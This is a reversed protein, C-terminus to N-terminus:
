FLPLTGFIHVDNCDCPKEGHEDFVTCHDLTGKGYFVLPGFTLREEAYGWKSKLLTSNESIKLPQIITKPSVKGQEIEHTAIYIHECKNQYSYLSNQM